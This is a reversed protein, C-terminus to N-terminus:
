IRAESEIKVWPKQAKLDRWADRRRRREAKDPDEGGVVKGKNVTSM